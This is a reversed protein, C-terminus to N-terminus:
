FQLSYRGGSSVKKIEDLVIVLIWSGEGVLFILISAVVDADATLV